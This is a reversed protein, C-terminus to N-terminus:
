QTLEFSNFFTNMKDYNFFQKMCLFSLTYAGNRYFIVRRHEILGKVNLDILYDIAPLSKFTTQKQEIIKANMAKFSDDFMKKIYLHMAKSRDTMPVHKPVNCLKSYIFRYICHYKVIPTAIEEDGSLRITKVKASSLDLLTTDSTYQCPFTISCCCEKSTFTMTTTTVGASLLTIFLLITKM